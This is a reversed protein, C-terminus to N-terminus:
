GGAFTSMYDLVQDIPDKQQAIVEGRTQLLVVRTEGGDGAEVAWEVDQPVAFHEELALGLRGIDAVVEDSLCYSACQESSAEIEVVGTEGYAVMHQKRGLRREVVRLSERDVIFRDPVVEGSVVSEGLGWNAEIIMRSRDGTNPDATFLVGASLADVMKLVGVGIPDSGLAVGQKQRAALSRSNFTSSWVRKVKEVVEAEGVVNLYTEYQGPHSTAGASRVSVHVEDQGCRECLERYSRRVQDEVAAPMPRGHILERIAQATKDLGAIGELDEKHAELYASIEGEVGTEEMFQKYANISVAFGPPAPLGLSAIEGLNACKKGVIGHDGAALDDLWCVLLPDM